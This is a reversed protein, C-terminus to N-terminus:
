NFTVLRGWGFRWEVEVAVLLEGFRGPEKKEVDEEELLGEEEVKEANGGKGGRLSLM